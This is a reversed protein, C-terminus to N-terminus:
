HGTHVRHSNKPDRILCRGIRHHQVVIVNPTLDILERAYQNARSPEGRYWRIELSINRGETWGLTELTSRFEMMQKRALPDDEHTPMLLAIKWTQSSQRQAYAGFSSAVAFSGITAIFVRRRMKDREVAIFDTPAVSILFPDYTLKHTVRGAAFARTFRFQQPTMTKQGIGCVASLM